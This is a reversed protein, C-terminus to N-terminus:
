KKKQPAVYKSLYDYQMETYNWILIASDSCIRDLKIVCMIRIQFQTFLDIILFKWM